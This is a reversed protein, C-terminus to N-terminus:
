GRWCRCGSVRASMALPYAFVAASGAGYRGTILLGSAGMDDTQVRIQWDRNLLPRTFIPDWPKFNGGFKSGFLVISEQDLPKHRGQDREVMDFPRLRYFYPVKPTNEPATPFMAPDFQAARTSRPIELIRPSTTEWATTPLMFRLNFLGNGPHEDLTLILNGGSRVYEGIQPAQTDDIDASGRAELFVISPHDTSRIHAARALQLGSQQAATSHGPVDAGNINVCQLAPEFNASQQARAATALTLPLVLLLALM